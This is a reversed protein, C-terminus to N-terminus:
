DTYFLFFSQIQQLAQKFFPTSSCRLVLEVQAETCLVGGEEEAMLRQPLHPQQAQIPCVDAHEIGGVSCDAVRQGQAEQADASVHAVGNHSHHYELFFCCFGDFLTQFHELTPVCVPPWCAKHDIAVSGFDLSNLRHKFTRHALIFFFTIM